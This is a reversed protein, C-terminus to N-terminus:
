LTANLMDACRSYGATAVPSSFDEVWNGLFTTNFFTRVMLCNCENGMSTLDHKFDQMSSKLILHILFKWIDLSRKSFCSSSSISNGVTGPTYFICSFKLLVAIETENVVLFGKVTCIMVFQKFSESLHSYWVMKGTEQSVQICTM